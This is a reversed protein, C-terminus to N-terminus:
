DLPTRCKDLLDILRQLHALANDLQQLVEELYALQCESVTISLGQPATQKSVMHYSACVLKCSSIYFSMLQDQPLPPNFRRTPPFNYLELLSKKRPLIITTRAALIEDKMTRAASLLLEGSKLSFKRAQSLEALRADVECAQESVRAIHNGLDQLQQLKWQVDPQAVARFVGGASKVNKLIIEAQIVNDGLLTVYAKLADSGNKGALFHREAIPQSPPVELRLDCKNSLHLRICCERICALVGQLTKRGSASQIWIFDKRKNEM